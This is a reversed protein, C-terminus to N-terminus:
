LTPALAARKLAARINRESRAPRKRGFPIITHGGSPHRAHWHSRGPTIVFGLELAHRLLPDKNFLRGM